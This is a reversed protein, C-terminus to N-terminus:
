FWNYVFKNGRSLGLKTKRRKMIGKKPYISVFANLKKVNQGRVRGREGAQPLPIPHPPFM